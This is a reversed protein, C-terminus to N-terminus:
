ALTIIIKVTKGPLQDFTYGAVPRGTNLTGSADTDKCDLIKVIRRKGGSTRFLWECQGYFASENQPNFKEKYEDPLEERIVLNARDSGFDGFDDGYKGYIDVILRSIVLPCGSVTRYLAVISENKYDKPWHRNYGVRTNKGGPVSCTEGKAPVYVASARYYFNPPLDATFTFTEPKGLTCGALLAASTLAGLIKLTRNMLAGQRGYVLPNALCTIM